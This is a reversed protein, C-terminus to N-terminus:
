CHALEKLRLVHFIYITLLVDMCHTSQMYLGMVDEGEGGKKGREGEDEKDKRGEKGGRAGEWRGEGM